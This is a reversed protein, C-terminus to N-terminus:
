EYVGSQCFKHKGFLPYNHFVRVGVLLSFSFCLSLSFLFVVVGVVGLGALERPAPNERLLFATVSHSRNNPTFFTPQRSGVVTTQISSLHEMFYRALPFRFSGDKRFLRLHAIEARVM